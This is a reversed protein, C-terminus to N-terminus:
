GMLTKLKEKIQGFVEEVSKEGNIIYFKNYGLSKVKLFQRRVKELITKQEFLERSSRTKMRKICTKPKVDLFFTADPILFEKNVENLWSMKIGDISGFALSSFLYRDTVVWFGKKLAPIIESHLHHARDAAFLLQLTDQELKWEKRLVTKVIGGILSNTPEKTLLVKIKQSELWKKILDTQTSQGSGDLGEVAIFKGKM